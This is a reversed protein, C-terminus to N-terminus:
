NDGFQEQIWDGGERGEPTAPSAPAFQPVTHTKSEEIIGQVDPILTSGRKARSRQPTSGPPYIAEARRRDSRQNAVADIEDKIYTKYLHYEPLHAYDPDTNPVRISVQIHPAEGHAAPFSTIFIDDASKIEVALRPDPQGVLGLSDIVARYEEKRHKKYWALDRNKNKEKKETKGSPSFGQGAAAALDPDKVALIPQSDGVAERVHQLLTRGQQPGTSGPDTRPVFADDFANYAEDYAAQSSQLINMELQELIDPTREQTGGQTVQYMVNHREDVMLKGSEIKKNITQQAVELAVDPTYQDSYKAAEAEISRRVISRNPNLDDLDFDNLLTDIKKKYEASRPSVVPEYTGVKSFASEVAKQLTATDETQFGGNSQKIDELLDRQWPHLSLANSMGHEDYALMMQVADQLEQTMTFPEVKTGAEASDHVILAAKQANFLRSQIYRSSALNKHSADNTSQALHILVDNRKQPDGMEMAVNFMHEDFMTEAQTKSMVSRGHNDTLATLGDVAATRANWLRDQSLSSAVLGSKLAGEGAKLFEAVLNTSGTRLAGLRNEELRIKVSLQARVEEIHAENAIWMKTDTLPVGNIENNDDAL